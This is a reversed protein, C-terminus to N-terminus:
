QPRPSPLRCVGGECGPAAAAPLDPDTAPAPLDDIPAPSGHFRRLVKEVDHTYLSGSWAVKGGADLLLGHPIRTFAFRKWATGSAEFGVPYAISRRRLFTEVAAADAPPDHLSVHVTVTHVGRPLYAAHIRRVKDVTAVCPPCQISWFEVFVPNGRLGDLDVPEGAPTNLWTEAEFSPPVAGAPLGGGIKM